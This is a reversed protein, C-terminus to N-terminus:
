AMDPLITDLLGCAQCLIDESDGSDANLWLIRPDRGFWSRQRKAYRCSATKISEIAEELSTQGDIVGVLEKYGIAQLSTIGKSAGPWFRKSKGWFAKRL